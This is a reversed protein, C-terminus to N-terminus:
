FKLLDLLQSYDHRKPSEPEKYERDQIGYSLIDKEIMTVIGHLIEDEQDITKRLCEFSCFCGSWGGQVYPRRLAHHYSRIRRLCIFCNGTFWDKETFMREGGYIKDRDPEGQNDNLHSYDTGQRANVPGYARFVDLNMRIDLIEEENVQLSKTFEDWDEESVQYVFKRLIKEREEAVLEGEQTSLIIDQRMMLNYIMMERSIEERFYGRIRPVKEIELHYDSIWSPTPALPAQQKYRYELHRVLPGAGRGGRQAIEEIQELSPALSFIDELKEYYVVLMPDDKWERYLRESLKKGEEHNLNLAQCIAYLELKKAHPLAHLMFDNGYLRACERIAEWGKKDAVLGLSLAMLEDKTLSELSFRSMKEQNAM